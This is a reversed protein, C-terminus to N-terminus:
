QRRLLVVGDAAGADSAGFTVPARHGERTLGAARADDASPATRDGLVVAARELVAARLRGAAALREGAGRVLVATKGRAALYALLRPDAALALDSLSGALHRHTRLQTAPDEGRRVFTLEASAFPDAGAGAPASLERASLFRLGGAPELQFYRFGVPEAGQAALATLFLAFAPAGPDRALGEGGRGELLPASAVAVADLVARLRAPDRLQDLGRVDGAPVASLTSVSRADPYAALAGLLDPGSFPYVVASPVREGRLPALAARLPALQRERYASLAPRQRACFAKVVGADLGPPVARCSLLDFWRRADAGLEAPAEQLAPATPVECPKVPACPEEAAAAASWLALAAIASLPATRM